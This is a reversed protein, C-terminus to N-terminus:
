VFGYKGVLEDVEYSWPTRKEGYQIALVEDLIRKTLAGSKGLAMPIAYDRDKYFIKEVPSVVCATGAGFIEIVRNENVAECLDHITFKKRLLRSNEGNNPL